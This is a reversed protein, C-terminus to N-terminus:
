MKRDSSKSKKLQLNPCRVSRSRPVNADMKTKKEVGKKTKSDSAGIRSPRVSPFFDYDRM